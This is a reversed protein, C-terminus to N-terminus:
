NKTVNITATVYPAQYERPDNYGSNHTLQVNTPNWGKSKVYEKIAEKIENEDLTIAAKM